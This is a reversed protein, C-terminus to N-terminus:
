LVLRVVYSVYSYLHCQKQWVQSWISQQKWYLTSVKEKLKKNSELNFELNKIIEDKM